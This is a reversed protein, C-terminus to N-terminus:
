TPMVGASIQFVYVFTMKLPSGMSCKSPTLVDSFAAEAAAGLGRTFCSRPAVRLRAEALGPARPGTASGRRPADALAEAEVMKGDPALSDRALRAPAM